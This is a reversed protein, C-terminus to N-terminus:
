FFVKKAAERYANRNVFIKFRYNSELGSSLYLELLTSLTALRPSIEGLITFKPFNFGDSSTPSIQPFNLFKAFTDIEQKNTYNSLSIMMIKPTQRTFFIKEYSIALHKVGTNFHM